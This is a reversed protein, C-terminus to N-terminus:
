HRKSKHDDFRNNHDYYRANVKRIEENRQAALERIMQEKKFRAVFFKAKVNQIKRDYERNIQAVQFDRERASFSYFNNSYKDERKFGNDNYAIEKGTNYVPAKKDGSSHQAFLSATVTFAVLLTFIKKM